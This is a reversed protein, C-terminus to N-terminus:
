TNKINRSLTSLIGADIVQNNIIAFPFGSTKYAQRYNDIDDIDIYEVSVRKLNSNLLKVIFDCPPSNKISIVKM